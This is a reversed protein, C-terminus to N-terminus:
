HSIRLLFMFFSDRGLFWGVLLGIKSNSLFGGWFFDDRFPMNTFDLIFFGALLLVLWALLRALLGAVLFNFSEKSELTCLGCRLGRFLSWEASPDGHQHM